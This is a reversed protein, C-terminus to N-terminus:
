RLLETDAARMVKEWAAEVSQSVPMLKHVAGGPIKLGLPAADLQTSDKIPGRTALYGLNDSGWNRFTYAQPCVLVDQNALNDDLYKDIFDKREGARAGAFSAAEAYKMVAETLNHAKAIGMLTQAREPTLLMLSDAVLEARFRLEDSPEPTLGIYVHGRGFSILSFKGAVSRDVKTTM